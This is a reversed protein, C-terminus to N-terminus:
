QWINRSSAVHDIKVVGGRGPGAGLGNRGHVIRQGGAPSVRASDVAEADLRGPQQARGPLIDGLGHARLRLADKEGGAARLGVVPGNEGGGLPQALAAAVDDRRSHLVMGHEMGHLLQLLLAKGDGIQLRVRLAAHAELSQLCGEPRVRDEDADHHHVVFGARDHGNLAHRPQRVADARVGQEVGVGHLAKELDRKTRAREARVEDGDGGVLDM